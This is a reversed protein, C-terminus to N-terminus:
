ALLKVSLIRLVRGEEQEQKDWGKKEEKEVGWCFPRGKRSFLIDELLLNGYNLGEMHDSILYFKNFTEELHGM